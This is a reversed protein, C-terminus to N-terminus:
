PRPLPLINCTVREQNDKKYGGGDNDNMDGGDWYRGYGQM